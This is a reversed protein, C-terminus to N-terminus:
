SAPADVREGEEWHSAAGDPGTMVAIYHGKDRCRAGPWDETLGRHRVFAEAKEADEFSVEDGVPQAAKMGAAGWHKGHKRTGHHVHYLRVSYKSM